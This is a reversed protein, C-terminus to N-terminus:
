FGSHKIQKALYCAFLIGFFQIVAIAIGAAGISIAHSKIYNGFSEICGSSRLLEPHNEDVCRRYGISVPPEVCCSMPLYSINFLAPNAEAWEKSSEVGCCNYTTHIENWIITIEESENGYKKMSSRMTNSLLNYTDNRLVYGSIGAALELIFILVLLVSFTLTMCYNEKYAGCCGFFAIVFILSGIVVLFTPVSFFQPDLIDSFNHYAGQVTLGIAMITIGTIVFLFNFLFLLYKVLNASTSLSM